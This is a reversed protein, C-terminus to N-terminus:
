IFEIKYKPNIEYGSNGENIILDDSLKLSGGLKKNLKNIEKSINQLSPSGLDYGSIKPSHHIKILYEFRKNIGSPKRFSHKFKFNDKRTVEKKEENIQLIIVENNKYISRLIPKSLDTKLFSEARKKLVDWNSVWLILTDKEDGVNIDDLKEFTDTVMTGITNRDKIITGNLIDICSENTGIVRNLHQIIIKAEAFSIDYSKEMLSFPIKVLLLNARSVPSLKSQEIIIKLLNSIQKKQEVTLDNGKM